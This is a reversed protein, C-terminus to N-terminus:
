RGRGARARRRRRGCTTATRALGWRRPTRTTRRTRTAKRTRTTRRRRSARRRGRTGRARARPARGTRPAAPRARPRTRRRARPTTAAAGTRSARGTARSTRPSAPQRRARSSSRRRTPSTTRSRTSSTSWRTRTTRSRPTPWTTRPEGLRARTLERGHRLGRLGGGRGGGGPLHPDRPRQQGHRVLAADDVEGPAQGVQPDLEDRGAAGRLREGLRPQGDARDVVERAEGLHHVPADLRQVRLEVGAQERDAVVRLVELGRGLVVDLPDVEHAHVEVGELPGRAPAPDRLRLDDLVDVDAPRRHDARGRLVVREGGHDRPGLGVVGHELLQAVRAARERHRRALRERGVGEGQGRAVVRRDGAPERLLVLVERRQEDAGVLLDRVEGVALVRVLARGVVLLDPRPRVEHGHHALVVALLEGEVVQEVELARPRHDAVELDGGARDDLVVVRAPDRQARRGEVGVASANAQSGM